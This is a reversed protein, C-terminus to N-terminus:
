HSQNPNGGVAYIHGPPEEGPAGPNVLVPRIWVRKMLSRQPGHHQRRWHGKRWHTSVDQRQGGLQGHPAHNLEDGMMRVMAYGESTLKQTAKFRRLPPTQLWKAHQQPPVDRGPSPDKDTGMSEIYFLSNVILEAAKRLLEAGEKLEEKRIEKVALHIGSSADTDSDLDAYKRAIFSEVAKQPSLRQEEPTFDVFYGPMMVGSGDEKVTTLGFKIRREPGGAANWPTVAVFAGDLYEFGDDFPLKVDDQKGFRIFFADYPPKWDELTCDSVDTQRLMSVIKDDMDFIQKGCLHYQGIQPVWHRLQLLKALLQGLADQADQTGEEKATASAQAMAPAIIGQMIMDPLDSSIQGTAVVKGHSACRTSFNWWMENRLRIPAYPSMEVPIM